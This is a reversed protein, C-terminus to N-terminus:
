KTSSATSSTTGGGINVTLAMYDTGPRVEEDGQVLLLGTIDGRSFSFQKFDKGESEVDIKYDTKGLEKKYYNVIFTPEADLNKWEIQVMDRHDSIPSNILKWVNKVSALTGTENSTSASPQNKDMTLILPSLIIKPFFAAIEMGRNKYKGSIFTIKEINDKDYVPIDAPFSDPVKSLTQPGSGMAIKLFIIIGIILLVLCGCGAMCTRKIASFASYKKTLEELPPEVIEINEINRRM